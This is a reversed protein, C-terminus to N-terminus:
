VDRHVAVFAAFDDAAIRVAMGFRHAVLKGDKIWRRVTRKSVNLADAIQDITFFKQASARGTRSVGLSGAVPTFQSDTRSKMSAGM